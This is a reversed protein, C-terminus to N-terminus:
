VVEDIHQGPEDQDKEIESQRPRDQSPNKNQQRKDDREIRHPKTAPYSPSVPAIEAM